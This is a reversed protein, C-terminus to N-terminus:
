VVDRAALQLDHPRPPGIVARFEKEREERCSCRWDRWSLAVTMAVFAMDTMAQRTILAWQVLDGPNGRSRARARGVLRRTIEWAGVRRRALLVFPVAFGVGGAV